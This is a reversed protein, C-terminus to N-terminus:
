QFMGDILMMNNHCQYQPFSRLSLMSIMITNLLKDQKFLNIRVVNDSDGKALPVILKSPYRTLNVVLMLWYLQGRSRAIDNQAKHPSLDTPVFIVMVIRLVKSWIFGLLVYYFANRSTSIHAQALIHLDMCSHSQAERPGVVPFTIM